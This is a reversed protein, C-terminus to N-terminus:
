EIEEYGVVSSGRVKLESLERLLDIQQILGHLVMYSGLPTLVPRESSGRRNRLLLSLAQKYSMQPISTTHRAKWEEETASDWEASACPLRLLINSAMVAPPHNYALGLTHVFCYAVLQTRRCCEARAWGVWTDSTPCINTERMGLKKLCEIVVNRLRMSDQVLSPSEWASYVMLTLSSRLIGVLADQRCLEADSCDQGHEPTPISSSISRTISRENSPFRSNRPRHPFSTRTTTEGEINRIKDLVLAQGALFLSEAVRNEFRYQAGMSSYGLIEELSFEEFSTTPWHIFPMQPHFTEWFSTLYRTLAHRSPLTFNPIKARCKSVLTVIHSYRTQSINFFPSPSRPHHPSHFDTVTALSSDGLPASPLWSRFPTGSHRDVAQHDPDLEVENNSRNHYESTHEESQQNIEDSDFNLYTTLLGASDM